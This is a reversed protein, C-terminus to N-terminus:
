GARMLGLGAVLDMAVAVFFAWAPAQAAGIVLSEVSQPLFAFFLLTSLGLPQLAFGSPGVPPVLVALSTLLLYVGAVERGKM